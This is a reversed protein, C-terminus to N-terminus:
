GGRRPTAAYTHSLRVIAHLDSSLKKLARGRKMKESILAATTGHLKASSQLVVHTLQPGLSEIYIKGQLHVGKGEGDYVISGPQERLRLTLDRGLIKSRFQVVQRGDPTTGMVRVWKDDPFRSPWAAADAFWRQVEAAPAAVTVEGVQWAGNSGPLDGVTVQNLDAHALGGGVLLSLLCVCCVRLARM